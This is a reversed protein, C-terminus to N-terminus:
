VTLRGFLNHSISCDAQQRQTTLFSWKIGSPQSKKEYAKAIKIGRDGVVVVIVSGHFPAPSDCGRGAKKAVPSAKDAM